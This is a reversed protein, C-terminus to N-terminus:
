KSLVTYFMTAEYGYYRKHTLKTTLKDNLNNVHLTFELHVFCRAQHSESLRVSYSADHVHSKLSISAVKFGKQLWGWYWCRPPSLNITGFLAASHFLGLLTFNFPRIQRQWNSSFVAYHKVIEAQLLNHMLKPFAEGFM